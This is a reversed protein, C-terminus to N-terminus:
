HSITYNSSTILYQIVRTPDKEFPLTGTICFYRQNHSFDSESRVIGEPVIFSKYAM